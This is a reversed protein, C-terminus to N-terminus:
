FLTMIVRVSESLQGSAIQSYNLEQCYSLGPIVIHASSHVLVPTQAYGADVIQFLTKM